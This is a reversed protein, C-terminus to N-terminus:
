SEEQKNQKKAADVAQKNQKKAADVARLITSMLRRRADQAEGDTLLHRVNLRSIATADAQLHKMTDAAIGCGKLQNKFPPSLVGFEIENM